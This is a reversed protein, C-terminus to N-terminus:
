GKFKGRTAETVGGGRIPNGKAKGTAPGSKMPVKSGSRGQSYNSTEKGRARGLGAEHSM